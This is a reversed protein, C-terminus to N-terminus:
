RRDWVEAPFLRRSHSLVLGEWDSVKMFPQGRDGMEHAGLFGLYILVVPLGLTTLKWSWAFRNSIQYHSDRSVHWPLLTVV